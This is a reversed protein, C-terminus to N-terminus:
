AVTVAVAVTAQPSFRTIPPSRDPRPPGERRAGGVAPIVHWTGRFAREADPCCGSWRIVPLATYRGGAAPRTVTAARPRQPAALSWTLPRDSMSAAQEVSPYVAFVPPCGTTSPYSQKNKILRQHWALLTGPTVIRHLRLHRPLLRTL